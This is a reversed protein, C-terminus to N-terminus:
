PHMALPANSNGEYEDEEGEENFGEGHNSSLSTLASLGDGRTSISISAGPLLYTPLYTPLPPLHYFRNHTM